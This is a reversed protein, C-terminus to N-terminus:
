AGPRVLVRGRVRASWVDALARDLGDLGVEEAVMAELLAPPFEDAMGAWLARREGIPTQVSDVGLLAVHRIIFPYVTTDLETGGTLGSAAVAGGYRTTRLVSALTAGGVCDVAGAWREAGLVRAPDTVLDDRGVIEVAGLRRLYDHEDAKGTSATM